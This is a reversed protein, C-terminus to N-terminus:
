EVEKEALHRKFEQLYNSSSSESKSWEYFKIIKKPEIFDIVSVDCTLSKSRILKLCKFYSVIGIKFSLKKIANDIGVIGLELVNEYRLITSIYLTDVKSIENFNMKEFDRMPLVLNSIKYALIPDILSIEDRISEYMQNIEIIKIFSLDNNRQRRKEMKHFDLKLETAYKASERFNNIITIQYDRLYLLYSLIKKITKIDDHYGKFRGSLENLLWGLLIGIIPLYINYNNM